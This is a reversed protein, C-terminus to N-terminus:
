RKMREMAQVFDEVSDNTNRDFPINYTIVAPPTGVQLKFIDLCRGQEEKELHELSYLSASPICRVNVGYSLIHPAVPHEDIAHILGWDTALLVGDTALCVKKRKHKEMGWTEMSCFLYRPTEENVILSKIVDSQLNPTKEWVDVWTIDRKPPAIQSKGCVKRFECVTREFHHSGRATYFLSTCSLQGNEIFHIALWGLLLANGIEICVVKPYPIDQITPAIKEIHCDKSILFRQDTVMLAHSAPKAHIGFPTCGAERIPVYILYHIIEGPNLASAILDTHVGLLGAPSEAKFVHSEKGTSRYESLKM